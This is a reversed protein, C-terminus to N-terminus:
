SRGKLRTIFSEAAVEFRDDFFFGIWDRVIRWQMRADETGMDPREKEMLGVGDVDTIGEPIRGVVYAFAPMRLLTDRVLVKFDTESVGPSIQLDRLDRLADDRTGEVVGETSPNQYVEYLRSPAACHPLWPLRRLIEEGVLEQGEDLTETRIRAAALEMASRVAFTAAEAWDLRTLLFVIDTATPSAPVLLEINPRESWSLASGTLNASGVLCQEDVLYLKAHLDDLLKLETNPRENVVEFSELDSVGAAIESARWRTIVKVPVYAPVVSLLVSLVRAKIFPACLLVRHEANKLLAKLREGDAVM